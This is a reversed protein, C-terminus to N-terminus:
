HQQKKTKLPTGDLQKGDDVPIPEEKSTSRMWVTPCAIPSSHRALLAHGDLSADFQALTKSYGPVWTSSPGVTLVWREGSPPRPNSDNESSGWKFPVMAAAYILPKCDFPTLAVILCKAVLSWSNSRCTQCKRVFLKSALVMNVGLNEILLWDQNEMNQFQKELSFKLRVPSTLSRASRSIYRLGKWIAMLCELGHAKIVAYALRRRMDLHMLQRVHLYLRTLPICADSFWLNNCSIKSLTLSETNDCHGPILWNNILFPAILTLSLLHYVRWCSVNM